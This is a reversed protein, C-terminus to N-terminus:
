HVNQKEFNPQVTLTTFSARSVLSRKFTIKTVQIFARNGVKAFFYKQWTFQSAISILHACFSKSERLTSLSLTSMSRPCSTSLNGRRSIRAAWIRQATHASVEAPVYRFVYHQWWSLRGATKQSRWISRQQLGRNEETLIGDSRLLSGVRSELRLRSKKCSSWRRRTRWRGFSPRGAGTHNLWDNGDWFRQQLTAIRSRIDDKCGGMLIEVASKRAAFM